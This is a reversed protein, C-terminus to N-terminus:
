SSRKLDGVHLGQLSTNCKQFLIERAWISDSDKINKKPEEWVGGGVGKKWVGGVVYM